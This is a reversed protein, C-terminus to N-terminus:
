TVSPKVWGEEEAETPHNTVWFHCEWCLAAVNTEDLWADSRVGGSRGRTLIEHVDTSPSMECRQCTPHEELIREVFPARKERYIKATKDSRPKLKSSGRALETRKLQSDGRKLPTRKV